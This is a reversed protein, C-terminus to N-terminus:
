NFNSLLLNSILVNSVMFSNSLSSISPYIESRCSSIPEVQFLVQYGQYSIYSIMAILEQWPM